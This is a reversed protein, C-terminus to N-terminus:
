DVLILAMEKRRGRSAKALLKLLILPRPKVWSQIRPRISITLARNAWCIMWLGRDKCHGGDDYKKQM